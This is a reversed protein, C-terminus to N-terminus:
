RATEALPRTVTGPEKAAPASVPSPEAIVLRRGDFRPAPVAPMLMLPLAAVAVLALVAMVAVVAVLKVPESEPSTVPVCLAVVSERRCPTDTAAAV